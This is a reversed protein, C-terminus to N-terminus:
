GAIQQVEAPVHAPLPQRGPQRPAPGLHTRDLVEVRGRRLRVGGRSKFGELIRSVVERATGLEDALAQHTVLLVPGREILMRALREDLRVAAVQEVIGVLATVRTGLATLVHHRFAADADVMAMVVEAPVLVVHVDDLAQARAVHPTRGIIGQLSLACLDGPGIRYLPVEQGNALPRSVRVTGHLVLPLGTCQAGPEFLVQGAMVAFPRSTAAVEAALAPSVNGLSPYSAVLRDFPTPTV